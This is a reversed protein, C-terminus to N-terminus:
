DSVEIRVAGSSVRSHVLRAQIIHPGKSLPWRFEHPYGVQALPSGDVIWLVEDNAPTVRASFKLNSFEPPTDPDFLYRSQNRPEAISVKPDPEETPCLPSQAAPAVDLHLHRAWAEYGFPLDLMARKMVFEKPCNVTARLHNRVDLAVLGHMTCASTPKTGPLFIETKTDTCFKTPRKGSLACVEVEEHTPLLAHQRLPMAPKFEPTMKELLAHTVPAAAIAGSAQRMRRQDHNGIWTVVLLRDNYATAWADRYGQSTGTKAAAFFDFDLPGGSPFSPRRAESDALIHTTLLAAERSFLPKQAASAHSFFTPKLSVGENALASYLSVLELPTVPLAGVALALGYADPQSRVQSVGSQELMSIAREVGIDSLVEIAPINRSNGLAQRLLMPGLFTHTINEPTYSKGNGVEFDVATDKLLTAATHSKDELALAYLFPKLSSGPSRKVQLFDIAGRAERDFYNLSGIYTLLEGTSIDMVVIAANTAGLEKTILANQALTRQALKQFELDLSSEHVLLPSSLVEHRMALLAHITENPRQPPDALSLSTSLSVRLTEDDVKGRAHLARLIGHARTLARQHGVASWPSFRRPSQPLAALYAAELWSLDDVPKNFYLLSARAVGHCSGYPALTLYQRLVRDHGHRRVLLLAEGAQRLKAFLSRKAPHQLRSVQMAITSAGSVVRWNKLNQGAARLVSSWSVGAHEFFRRDETELTTVLVREPITAPLPWYGQVGAEGSIEGIFHQHRDLVVHSPTKLQLSDDLRSVFRVVLATVLLVGLAWRHKKQHV